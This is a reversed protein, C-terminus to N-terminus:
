FEQFPQLLNPYLGGRSALLPPVHWSLFEGLFLGMQLILPAFNPTQFGRLYVEVLIHKSVQFYSRFLERGLLLKDLRGVNLGRSFSWRIPFVGRPRGFTFDKRPSWGTKYPNSLDLEFFKIIHVQFGLALWKYISTQHFLWKRHLSQSDDLQFLWKYLTTQPELCDQLQIGNGFGM